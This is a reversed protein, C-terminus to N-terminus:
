YSNKFYDVKNTGKYTKFVVHTQQKTYLFEYSLISCHLIHPLVLM